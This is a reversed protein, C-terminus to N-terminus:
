FAARGNAVKRLVSPRTTPEVRRALMSRTLRWASIPQVHIPRGQCRVTMRATFRSATDVFQMIPRFHLGEKNKIVLEREAEM